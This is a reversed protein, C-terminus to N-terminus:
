LFNGFQPELTDFSLNVHHLNQIRLRQRFLMMEIDEMSQSCQSRTHGILGCGNCLKHVKKYKCQIWFKSSDNLRLVFGSIVPMWPNIQVRIRMFRINHPIIDEWDVRESIGMIHGMREALNLYQYELPLGHLQVWISVFNLQLMEIM